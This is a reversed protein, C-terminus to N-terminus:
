RKLRQLIREHEAIYDYRSRLDDYMSEDVSLAEAPFKENAKAIAKRIDKGKTLWRVVERDYKEEGPTREGIIEKAREIYDEAFDM